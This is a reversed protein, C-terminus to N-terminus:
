RFVSIVKRKVCACDIGRFSACQKIVCPLHRTNDTPSSLVEYAKFNQTVGVGFSGATPQPPSTCVSAHGGGVCCHGLISAMDQSLFYKRKRCTALWVWGCHSCCQVGANSNHLIAVWALVPHLVEVLHGIQAFFFLFSPKQM